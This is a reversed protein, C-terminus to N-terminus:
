LEKNLTSPETILTCHKKNLGGLKREINLTRLGIDSTKPQSKPIELELNWTELETGIAIPILYGFGLDWNGLDWNGLDWTGVLWAVLCGLLWTVM